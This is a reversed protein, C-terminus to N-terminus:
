SASSTSWGLRRPGQRAGRPPPTEEWARDLGQRPPAGASARTDSTGGFGRGGSGSTSRRSRLYATDVLGFRLPSAQAIRKMGELSRGAQRRAGSHEVRLPPLVGLLEEPGLRAASRRGLSGAEVRDAGRVGTQEEKSKSEDASANV